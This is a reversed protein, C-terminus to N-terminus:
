RSLNDTVRACGEYRVQYVLGHGRLDDGELDKKEEKFPWCVIRYFDCNAECAFDSGEEGFICWLCVSIYELTESGNQIFSINTLPNLIHNLHQHLNPLVLIFIIGNQWLTQIQNLLILLNSM